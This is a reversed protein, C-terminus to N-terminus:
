SILVAKIRERSDCLIFSNTLDDIEHWNLIYRKNRTLCKGKELSKSFLCCRRPPHLCLFKAETTDSHSKETMNDGESICKSGM